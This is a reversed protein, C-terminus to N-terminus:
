NIILITRRAPAQFERQCENYDDCALSCEHSMRWIITPEVAIM